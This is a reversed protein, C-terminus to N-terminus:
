EDKPLEDKPEEVKPEPDIEPATYQLADKGNFERKIEVGPVFEQFDIGPPLSLPVPAQEAYSERILFPNRGKRDFLKTRAALEPLLNEDASYDDAAAQEQAPEDVAPPSKYNKMSTMTGYCAVLIAILFVIKEKTIIM